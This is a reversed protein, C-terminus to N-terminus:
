YYTGTRTRFQVEQAKTLLKTTTYALHNMYGIIIAIYKSGFGVWNQTSQNNYRSFLIRMQYITQTNALHTLYISFREHQTFIQRSKELYEFSAGMWQSRRLEGIEM